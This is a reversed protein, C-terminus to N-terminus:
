RRRRSLVGRLIELLSLKSLETFEGADLFAGECGICVEYRIGPKHRDAVHRTPKGCRPCDIETVANMSQGREAEGVDIAEAVEDQALWDLEGADFWIGECGTCRDVEVGDVVVSEMASRCKPCALAATM